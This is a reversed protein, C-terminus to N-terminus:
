LRDSVTLNLSDSELVEVVSRGDETLDVECPPDMEVGDPDWVLRVRPLMPDSSTARVVGVSQDSLRVVCGVPFVGLAKVFM